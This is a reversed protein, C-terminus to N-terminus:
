IAQPFQLALRTECERQELRTHVADYQLLLNIPATAVATAITITTLLPMDLLFFFESAHYSSM